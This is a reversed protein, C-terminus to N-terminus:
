SGPPKTALSSGTCCNRIKQSLEPRMAWSDTSISAALRLSLRMAPHRRRGSPSTTSSGGPNGASFLVSAPGKVAEIREINYTLAAQDFQFFDGRIGNYAFNGPTSRFGRLVYDSYQSSSFANVGVMSKTAEAVTLVQRDQLIERNIVQISQPIDRLRAPMRTGLDTIKETYAGARRTTVLVENLQRATQELTIPPLQIAQGAEILLPTESPAYGVISATLTYRGPSSKLLFRGAADTLTGQRLRGTSTERLAITVLEAPQDDATRVIGSLTVFSPTENDDPAHRALTPTVALPGLVLYLWFCRYLSLAHLSAFM